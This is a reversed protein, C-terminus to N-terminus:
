ISCRMDYATVTGKQSEGRGEGSRRKAALYCFSALIGWLWGRTFSFRINAKNNCIKKGMVNKKKKHLHLRAARMQAVLFHALYFQQWVVLYGKCLKLLVSM